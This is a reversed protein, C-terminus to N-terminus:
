REILTEHNSPNTDEDQIGFNNFRRELMAFYSDLRTGSFPPVPFDWSRRSSSAGSTGQHNALNAASQVMRLLQEAAALEDETKDQGLDINNQM